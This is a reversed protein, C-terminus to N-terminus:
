AWQLAEDPPCASCLGETPILATHAPLAQQAIMRVEMRDAIIAALDVLTELDNASFPREDRDAIILTGLPKRCLTHLPAFAAFNLDGASSTEEIADQVVVPSQLEHSAPLGELREWHEIGLGIRCVPSGNPQQLSIYAVPAHFVRGALHALRHLDASETRALVRRGRCGDGLCAPERYPSM